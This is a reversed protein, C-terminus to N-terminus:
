STIPGPTGLERLGPSSTLPGSPSTVQEGDREKSRVVRDGGSPIQSRDGVDEVSPERSTSSTAEVGTVGYCVRSESM